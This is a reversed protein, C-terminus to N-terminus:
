QCQMSGVASDVVSALVEGLVQGGVEGLVQSDVIALRHHQGAMSGLYCGDRSVVVRCAALHCAQQFVV